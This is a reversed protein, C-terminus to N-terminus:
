HRHKMGCYKGIGSDPCAVTLAEHCSKESRGAILCQAADNHAKAMKQHDAIAAKVHKDEKADKSQAVVLGSIGVLMSTLLYKLKM